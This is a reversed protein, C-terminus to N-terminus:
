KRVEVMQLAKNEIIDACIVKIQAKIVPCDSEAVAICFLQFQEDTLMTLSEGLEWGTVVVIERAADLATDQKAATDAQTDHLNYDM